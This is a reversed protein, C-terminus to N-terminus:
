KPNPTDTLEFEIDFGVLHSLETDNFKIIRDPLDGFAWDLDHRNLLAVLTQPGALADGLSYPMRYEVHGAGAYIVFLAQPHLARYRNLVNLWHANRIRLGEVSTWIDTSLDMIEKYRNPFVFRTGFIEEMFEPELGVVEIGAEEAAQWVPLYQPLHKTDKQRPWIQGDHLFETFVIVERGSKALEGMLKAVERQVPAFAHEEGVLLYRHEPTLQGALWAMDQEAPHTFTEKAAYFDDIRRAFEEESKALRPLWKRIELNHKALFYDPLNEAQLFSAYPYTDAPLFDALARGSKTLHMKLDPGAILMKQYRKSPATWLFTVPYHAQEEMAQRYTEKVRRALQTSLDAPVERTLHKPLKIRKPFPQACVALAVLGIWILPLLIKILIRDLRNRTM